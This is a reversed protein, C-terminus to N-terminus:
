ELTLPTIGHFSLLLKEMTLRPQANGEIARRAEEVLQARRLAGRAGIKSAATQAESALDLNTTVDEGAACRAVDHFWTELEGLSELADERSGALAEALQLTELWDGDRLRAVLLIRDRRKQLAKENLDLALGLNGGALAARLRAEDAPVKKERAVREAVVELPLPAFSVRLCRSRITPKLFDPTSSLVIFTTDSPPEELTKLLANQAGETFDVDKLIAVKRRGGVARLSVRPIVLERLLRVGIARAASRDGEPQYLGQAQMAAETDVWLVLPHAHTKPDDTIRRCSGCQGCPDDVFRGQAAAAQAEPSECNLARAFLLAALTKGVGAPGAFLYAHHVRGSTLAGGLLTTARPQGLLAHLAM